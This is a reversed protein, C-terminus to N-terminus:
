CDLLKQRFWQVASDLFDAQHAPDSMRHDGNEFITLKKPFSVQQYISQAQWLPVIDDSAGHFIHINGVQDLRGSLDFTLNPALSDVMVTEIKLPTAFVVLVSIAYRSAVDLCVSGGMSSGFLGIQQRDIGLSTLKKIASYIDNSRGQLSTVKWLDGTSKGCGRHDFRFYGIGVSNCRDALAIQKPSNRNSQLGHCGIVVPPAAIGGPLHLTGMLTFTDADFTIQQTSPLSSKMNFLVSQLQCSCDAICATFTLRNM